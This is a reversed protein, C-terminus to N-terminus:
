MEPEHPLEVFLRGAADDFRTVNFEHLARALARVERKGFTDKFAKADIQEYECIDFIALGSKQAEYAVDNIYQLRDTDQKSLVFSDVLKTFPIQPIQRGSIFQSRGNEDEWTFRSVRPFGDDYIFSVKGYILEDFGHFRVEIIDSEGQKFRWEDIIKKRNPSLRMEHVWDEIEQFCGARKLALTPDNAHLVNSEREVLNMSLTAGQHTRDLKIAIKKKPKFKFLWYRLKRFAESNVFFTAGNKKGALKDGYKIFIIIVITLLFMM